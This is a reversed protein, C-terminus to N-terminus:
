KPLDRRYEKVREEAENKINEMTEESDIDNIIAEYVGRNFIQLAEADLPTHRYHRMELALEEFMPQILQEGFFADERLMVRMNKRAPIYASVMNINEGGDQQTVIYEVFRWAWQKNKSQSNIALKTDSAPARVGLPPRTVRWKGGQGPMMEQISGAGWSGMNFIMVLEKGDDTQKEQEFISRGFILESKYTQKSVDLMDTFQETNRIFNLDADFFGKTSGLLSMLDSPTQFIYQENKKLKTAVTLLNEPNEIFDGFEIPEAPFGNDRMVDYRYYTVIPSVLITMAILDGNIARNSEWVDRPFDDEYKGALYPEGELDEFYGEKTYESFYASDLLLIDPGEGLSIAKKYESSIQNFDFKELKIKIKPHTSEFGKIITSWGDNYTWFKIEVDENPETIENSQLKGAGEADASNAGICGTLVAFCFIFILLILHRFVKM